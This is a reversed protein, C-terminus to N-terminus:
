SHILANKRNTYVGVIIVAIGICIIVIDGPILIAAVENVMGFVMLM